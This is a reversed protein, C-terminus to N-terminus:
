LQEDTHCLRKFVKNKIAAHTMENITYKTNLHRSRDMIQYGYSINASLKMTEAVVSSSPNEDKQCRAKVAFLVFNHFM